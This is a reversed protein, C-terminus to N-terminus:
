NNLVNCQNLYSYVICQPFGCQFVTFLCFNVSTTALVKLQSNRYIYSNKWNAKCQVPSFKPKTRVKLPVYTMRNAWTNSTRKNSATTSQHCVKKQCKLVFTTEPNKTDNYNNITTIWFYSSLPFRFFPPFIGTGLGSNFRLGKTTHANWRPFSFPWKNSERDFSPIETKEKLNNINAM